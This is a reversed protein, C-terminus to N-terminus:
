QHGNPFTGRNRRTRRNRATGPGSDAGIRNAGKEYKQIQQFTIGLAEGLREQSLTYFFSSDGSALADVSPASVLGLDLTIRGSRARKTMDPLLCILQAINNLQASDLLPKETKM